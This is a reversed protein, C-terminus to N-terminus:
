RCAHYPSPPMGGRISTLCVEAEHVLTVSEGAGGAQVLAVAFVLLVLHSQERVGANLAAHEAHHRVAHAAAGAPALRGVLHQERRALQELAVHGFVFVGRHQQLLDALFRVQHDLEGGDRGLLLGVAGDGGEQDVGAAFAVPHVGAIRANVM